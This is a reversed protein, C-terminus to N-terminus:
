DNMDCIAELGIHASMLPQQTYTPLKARSVRKCNSRVGKGLYSRVTPLARPDDSLGTLAACGVHLVVFKSRALSYGMKHCKTISCKIKKVLYGILGGNKCAPLFPQM